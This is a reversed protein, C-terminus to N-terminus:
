VIELDECQLRGLRTLTLVKGDRLCILGNRVAAMVAKRDNGEFHNITMGGYAAFTLIETISM